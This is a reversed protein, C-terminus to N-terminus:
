MLYLLLSIARPVGGTSLCHVPVRGALSLRPERRTAGHSLFTPQIAARLPM